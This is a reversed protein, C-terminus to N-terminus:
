SRHAKHHPHHHEQKGLTGWYVGLVILCTGIIFPYSLGEGLLPVALTATVAPELYHFLNAKNVDIKKLGWIQLFFASVSSLFVIFLFGLIGLLSVGEIWQPKQIYELAAPVSFTAAGIVFIILTLTIPSYNKLNEKVLLLGGVLAIASLIILFDGLLHTPSYSNGFLNLPLGIILIAGILSIFVGVLNASFIKERLFWWGGLLSIIPTILTLVSANISTTRSLGEFFLAIHFTILLLSAAFLKPLHELKIKKEKKELMLFFPLILLAALAFRSFALIMTPIEQLTIKAVVFNAGWIIHALALALYPLPSKLIQSRM